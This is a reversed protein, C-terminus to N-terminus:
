FPIEDDGWDEPEQEAMREQRKEEVERITQDSKALREEIEKLEARKRAMWREHEQETDQWIGGADQERLGRIPPTPPPLRRQIKQINKENIVKGQKALRFASEKRRGHICSCPRAVKDLNEPEINQIIEAITPFRMYRHTDLLKECAGRLQSESYHGLQKYYVKKQDDGLEGFVIELPELIRCFEYAYNM